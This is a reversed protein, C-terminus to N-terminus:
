AGLAIGPGESLRAKFTDRTDCWFRAAPAALNYRLKQVSPKPNVRDFLALCEDIQEPTM